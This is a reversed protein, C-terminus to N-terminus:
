RAAAFIPRSSSESGRRGGAARRRAQGSSLRHADRRIAAICAEGGSLTGIDHDLALDIKDALAAVDPAPVGLLRMLAAYMIDGREDCVEELAEQEEYPRGSCFAEYARLEAAAAEFAALARSWGSSGEGEIPSPLTPTASSTFRPRGFADGLGVEVGVRGGGDLPLLPLAVAAGLVARRSPNHEAM